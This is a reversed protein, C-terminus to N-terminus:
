EVAELKFGVKPITMLMPTDFPKDLQNRLQYMHSRLIDNSPPTNGWLEEILAERKVINPAKHM